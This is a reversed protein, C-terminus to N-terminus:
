NRVIAILLITLNINCSFSNSLTQADLEVDSEEIKVALSKSRSLIMVQLGYLGIGIDQGNLYGCFKDIKFALAVCIEPEGDTVSTIDQM